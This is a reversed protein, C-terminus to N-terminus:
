QSSTFTRPEAPATPASRPQIMRRRQAIDIGQLTQGWDPGPYRAIEIGQLNKAAHRGLFDLLRLVQVNQRPDGALHRVGAEWTELLTLFDTNYDEMNECGM